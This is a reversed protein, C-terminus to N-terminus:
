LLGRRVLTKFTDQMENATPVGLSLIRAQNSYQMGLARFDAMAQSLDNESIPTEAMKRDMSISEETKPIRKEM